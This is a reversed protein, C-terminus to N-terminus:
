KINQNLKLLEKCTKDFDPHGHYLYENTNINSLIYEDELGILMKLDTKMLEKDRSSEAIWRCLDEILSERHVIYYEFLDENRIRENIMFGNISDDQLRYKKFDLHKSFKQLKNVIKGFKLGTRTEDYQFRDELKYAIGMMENYLERIEETM